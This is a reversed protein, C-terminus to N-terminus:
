RVKFAGIRVRNGGDHRAHEKDWSKVKLRVDGTMQYLGTWIDQQGSATGQAIEGQYVDKIIDGALWHDTRYCGTCTKDEETPPTLNLPWHDAHIRNSTGTRDIHTFVKYSITVPALCEYYVTLTFKEGSGYVDKDTQYGVIQIKDEFNVWVRHLRPDTLSDYEARTLTHLAYRNQETEDPRLQSAALVARYSRADIVPIHQGGAVKRFAHNTASFSDAPLLFYTRLAEPAGSTHVPAEAADILFHKGTPDSVTLAPRASGDLRLTTADNGLIPHVGGKPDVLVKGAHADPAWQASADTVTGPGVASAAGPVALWDRKGDRDSDNKPDWGLLRGTTTVGATELRVTQDTRGLLVELAAQRDRVEPVDATYFNVDKRGPRGFSGHKFIREGLDESGLGEAARYTDVLHKQSVHYSLEPYFRAVAQGALVLGVVLMVVVPLLGREAHDALQGIRDRIREPLWRNAIVLGLAGYVIWTGRSGILMHRAVSEEIGPYLIPAMMDWREILPAFGGILGVAMLIAAHRAFPEGGHLLRPLILVGYALAGVVFLGVMDIPYFLQADRGIRAALWVGLVGAVAAWAPARGVGGRRLGLGALGGLLTAVLPEGSVLVEEWYGPPATVSVLMDGGAAIWAGAGAWALADKRPPGTLTDLWGGFRRMPQRTSPLIYRLLLGAACLFTVLWFCLVAPDFSTLFDGLFDRQAPSLDSSGEVQRAELYPRLTRFALLIGFFLVIAATWIWFGLPRRIAEAARKGATVLRSFYTALLVAGAMVLLPMLVSLKLAEPFRDAGQKEFPPDYTLFSSLPEPSEHLEKALVLAMLVVGLSVLHSRTRDEADLMQRLLIGVAVAGAPAAPWLMQNQEKLMAMALAAPVVFWLVVGLKAGDRDRAASWALAGLGVVYLPSWPFAGFGIQRIVLDFNRDFLKPGGSFFPDTFRFQGAFGDPAAGLVWWALVGFVGATVVAVRLQKLETRGRVLAAGVTLVGYTLLAFLGKSLFGLALGTLLVTAVTRWRADRAELLLAAAVLALGAIAAPEGAVSRAQAFYLPTTALVLGAFTATIGGWLRRTVWLTVGMALLAFLVGPVRTSFETPGFIEYALAQSWAQLPAVPRLTGNEKFRAVAGGAAVAESIAERIGAVDSGPLCRVRDNDLLRAHEREAAARLEPTAELDGLKFVDRRLWRWIDLMQATALRKRVGSTDWDSRRDFIILRDNPLYRLAENVRAAAEDWSKDQSPDPVLLPLELVVAAVVERKAVDLAERVARTAEAPSVPGAKPAETSRLVVGAAQGAEEVVGRGEGPLTAAIVQPPGYLTRALDARDMEWPEWLGSSGLGVFCLVAGVLCAGLPGWRAVARGAPTEELAPKQL